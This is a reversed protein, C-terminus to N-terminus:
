PRVKGPQRKQPEELYKHVPVEILGVHSSKSNGWTGSPKQSPRIPNSLIICCCDATPGIHMTRRTQLTLTSDFAM